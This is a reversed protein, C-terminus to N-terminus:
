GHHGPDDHRAGRPEPSWGDNTYAVSVMPDALSRAQDPRERAAAVAEQVALLDPNKALAEEVLAALHPDEPEPSAPATPLEALVPRTALLSVIVAPAVRRFATM